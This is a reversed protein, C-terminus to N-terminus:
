IQFIISALGIYIHLHWCISMINVFAGQRGFSVVLCDSRLTWQNAIRNSGFYRSVMFFAYHYNYHYHYHYHYHAILRTQSLNVVASPDWEGKTWNLKNNSRFVVNM